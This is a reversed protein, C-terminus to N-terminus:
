VPTLILDIEYRGALAALRWGPSGEAGFGITWSDFRLEHLTRDYGALGAMGRGFREEALATGDEGLLVIHGRYIERADWDSAPSPGPPALGIRFLSFQLGLWRGDRGRLHAALQWAETRSEAHPAHDEPLNLQWEGSPPEFGAVPQGAIASAWDGADLAAGHARGARDGSGAVSFLAVGLLSGFFLM